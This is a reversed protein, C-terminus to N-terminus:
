STLRTVQALETGYLSYYTTGDVFEPNYRPQTGKQMLIIIDSGGFTFYGFEDGKNCRRGTEHTMNVGSVQCMGVPVVAVVGVDGYPSDKTDITLIGRAQLFEYGNDASDAASFQGDKLAVDLYVQGTLPYCEKVTGAVPTHFRHYSYPGLFLHIFHGGNFADAYQSRELLQQVTAYIHTGKLLIAPEIKGTADIEYSKKYTCDAPVNITTNDALDQIPRLGPNLERAFFQNFTLWGSASNPRLKGPRREDPIMSDEVRYEPSDCRFSDLIQEDFSDPTDLFDGWARAWLVLFEAFWPIDQLVGGADLPQNILWHFWCLRDYVEQHEGLTSTPALWAEDSSQQPIWHCYLVLYNVYADFTTPWGDMGPLPLAEYLRKDLGGDRAKANAKELSELLQAVFDADDRHDLLQQLETIDEPAPIKKALITM